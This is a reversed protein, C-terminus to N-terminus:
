MHKEKMFFCNSQMVSVRCSFISKICKFIEKSCLSHKCSLIKFVLSFGAHHMCILKYETGTLDTGKEFLCKRVARPCKNWHKRQSFVHEFPNSPSIRVRFEMESRVYPDIQDIKPETQKPLSAHAGLVAFKTRKPHQKTSHVRPIKRYNELKRMLKKYQKMCIQTM